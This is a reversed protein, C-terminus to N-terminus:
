WNTVVTQDSVPLLIPRSTIFIIIIIIIITIYSQIPAAKGCSNQSLVSLVVVVVDALRPRDSVTPKLATSVTCCNPRVGPSRDTKPGNSINEM